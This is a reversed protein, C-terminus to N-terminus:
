LLIVTGLTAFFCVVRCVNRDHTSANATYLIASLLRNAATILLRSTFSSSLLLYQHDNDTASDKSGLEVHSSM